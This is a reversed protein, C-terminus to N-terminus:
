KGGRGGRGRRKTNTTTTKKPAKGRTIGMQLKWGHKMALDVLANKRQLFTEVHEPSKFVLLWQQLAIDTTLDKFQSIAWPLRIDTAQLLALLQDEVQM